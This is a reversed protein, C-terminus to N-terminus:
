PDALEDPSAGLDETTARVAEVNGEVSITWTGQASVTPLLFRYSQGAGLTISPIAATQPEEEGLLWRRVSEDAVRPVAPSGSNLIWELSEIDNPIYVTNRAAM